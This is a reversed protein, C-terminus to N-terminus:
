RRRGLPLRWGPLGMQEPDVGIDRYLEDADHGSDELAKGIVALTSAITSPGFFM